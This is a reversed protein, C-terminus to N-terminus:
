AFIVMNGHYENVSVMQGCHMLSEVQDSVIRSIFNQYNGRIEANGSVDEPSVGIQEHECLVCFVDINLESHYEVNFTWVSVIRTGTFEVQRSQHLPSSWLAHLPKLGEVGNYIQLRATAQSLPM